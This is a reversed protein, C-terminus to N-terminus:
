HRSYMPFEVTLLYVVAEYTSMMIATNPIQRVLQTALGRYLARAGEEQAVTFLTQFFSRYKTGEERLRTRVVEHPYALISAFTKSCAGCLMYELFDRGSKQQGIHVRRERLTKKLHEYIVFHIVTESIGAYSATVGRYFGFFGDRQYVSKICQLAGLNKGIKRQDLQLRTKVLWIPNTCTSACFGASMASFMHVKKSEPSLRQNLFNKATDYACFYIARSPAVGILNPGLGKFLASPGETEIIHRLCMMIGMRAPRPNTCTCLNAVQGAPNLAPLFVPRHFTASSSQLRTKLVELPCTLVAGTTGAIGGAILHIHVNRHSM